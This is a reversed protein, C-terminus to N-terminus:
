YKKLFNFISKVLKEKFTDISNGLNKGEKSRERRGEKRKENRRGREKRGKKKEKYRQDVQFKVLLPSANYKRRSPQDAPCAGNILSNMMERQILTMAEVYGHEQLLYRNNQESKHKM